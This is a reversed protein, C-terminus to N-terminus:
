EPGLTLGTMESFWGHGGKGSPRVLDVFLISYGGSETESVNQVDFDEQRIKPFFTDGEITTRILSLHLTHTQPLLTRYVEGGGIVIADPPIGQLTCTEIGPIPHSTLVLNRRNPLARGISEFTRRGMVLTQGLTMAKFHALDAPIHWPLAGGKGIVRNMSCAVIMRM